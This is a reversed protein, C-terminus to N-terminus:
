PRFSDVFKKTDELADKLLTVRINHYSPAPMGRGYEGIAYIMDQFSEDRVANFPLGVTYAWTAIKKWAVM